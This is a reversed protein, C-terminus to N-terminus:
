TFNAEAYAPNTDMKIDDTTVQKFQSDTNEYEEDYTPNAAVMANNKSARKNDGTTLPKAIIYDYTHQQEHKTVNVRHFSVILKTHIVYNYRYSYQFLLTIIM